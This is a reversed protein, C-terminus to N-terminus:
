CLILNEELNYVKKKKEKDTQYFGTLVCQMTKSEIQSEFTLNIQNILMKIM